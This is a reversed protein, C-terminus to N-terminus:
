LTSHVNPKAQSLLMKRASYAHEYVLSVSYILTLKTVLINKKANEVSSYLKRPKHGRKTQFYYHHNCIYLSTSLDNEQQLIDPPLKLEYVGVLCSIKRKSAEETCGKICCTNTGGNLRGRIHITTLNVLNEHQEMKKGGPGSLWYDCQPLKFKVSLQNTLDSVTASQTLRFTHIKGHWDQVFVQTVLRKFPPVFCLLNGPLSLHLNLLDILTYEFTSLIGLLTSGSLLNSVTLSEGALKVFLVGFCSVLLFIDYDKVYLLILYICIFSSFSSFLLTTQIM